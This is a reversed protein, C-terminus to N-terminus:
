VAMGVLGASFCPSPSLPLSNEESLFGATRRSSKAPSLLVRPRQVRRSSKHFLQPFLSRLRSQRGPTRRISRSLSHFRLSFARFVKHRLVECPRCKRFRLARKGGEGSILHSKMPVQSLLYDSTVDGPTRGSPLTNWWSDAAPSCTHEGSSTGKVCRMSAGRLLGAEDAVVL